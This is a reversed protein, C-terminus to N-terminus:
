AHELEIEPALLTGDPRRYAEVEVWVGAIIAGRSPDFETRHDVYVMRGQITFADDHVAEVQGTFEVEQDNELEPSDPASTTTCGAGMALVLVVVLIWLKIKM